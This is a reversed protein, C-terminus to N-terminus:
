TNPQNPQQRGDSVRKDVRNTIMEDLVSQVGAHDNAALAHRFRHRPSMMDSFNEADQSGDPGINGIITSAIEDIKAADRTQADENGNFLAQAVAQAPADPSSNVAGLLM